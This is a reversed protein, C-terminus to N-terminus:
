QDGNMFLAELQSAMYKPSFPTKEKLWWTVIGLNSAAVIEPRVRLPLRGKQKKDEDWLKVIELLMNYIRDQFAKNDLMANYLGANKYFHELFATLVPPSSTSYAKQVTQISITQQMEDLMEAITQELLDEISVYHLYFTARNIEARDAIAQVTLKSRDLDEQILSIIAQKLLKRTRKIRLDTKAKDASMM